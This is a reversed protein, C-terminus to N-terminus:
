IIELIIKSTIEIFLNLNDDLKMDEKKDLFFHSVHYFYRKKDLSLKKYKLMISYWKPTNDLSNSM